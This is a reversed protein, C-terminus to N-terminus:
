LERVDDDTVTRWIKTGTSRRWDGTAIGDGRSMEPSILEAELDEVVKTGRPIDEISEDKKLEELEKMCDSGSM